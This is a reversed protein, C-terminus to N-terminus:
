EAVVPGTEVVVVGTQEPNLHNHYSYRGPKDFVLQVSSGDGFEGLNLPPFVQHTPHVASHVTMLSASKNVWTVRAGVKLTLTAPSFGDKTVTVIAEQIFPPPTQQVTNQQPQQTVPPTQSKKGAVGLFVGGVLVAIVVVIAALLKSNM